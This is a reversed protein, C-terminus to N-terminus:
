VEELKSSSINRNMRKLVDDHIHQIPIDLYKVIKDNSAFFEIFEETINEPYMYLLRIWRLGEIETLMRLLKLLDDGSKLDRGYAALDQAILNIEVVGEKALKEVERKVDAMPRSRLPGRIKPIICFSCNHQCGEAIKVYSSGKTLTNKRPLSESYIYNTRDAKVSGQPLSSKIYKVINPFEDTGVFFDVEPFGEKLQEKYRQPLCGVVILRTGPNDQKLEGLSLIADISEKKADEIFSCTNVIVIDAGKPEQQIDWGEQQILGLMVESDVRNRACGLSMIFVRYNQDVRQNM